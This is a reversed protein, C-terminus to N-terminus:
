RPDRHERWYARVAAVLDSAIVRSRERLKERGLRADFTVMQPPLVLEDDFHPSTGVAEISYTRVVFTTGFQQESRAEIEEVDLHVIVDSRPPRATPIRQKKCEAVIAFRLAACGDRVGECAVGIVPVEALRLPVEPEVVQVPQVPQVSQSRAL